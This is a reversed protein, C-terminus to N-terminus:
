SEMRQLGQLKFDRNIGNRDLRGPDGVWRLVNYQIDVTERKTEKGQNRIKSFVVGGQSHPGRQMANCEFNHSPSHQRYEHLSVTVQGPHFPASNSTNQRLETTSNTTTACIDQGAPITPHPHQTQRKARERAEHGRM